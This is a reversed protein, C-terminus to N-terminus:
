RCLQIAEFMFTLGDFEAERHSRTYYQYTNKPSLVQLLWNSYEGWLQEPLAGCIRLTEVFIDLPAGGVADSNEPEHSPCKRELYLV